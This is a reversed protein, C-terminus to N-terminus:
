NNQPHLLSQQFIKSQDKESLRMETLRDQSYCSVFKPAEARLHVQEQMLAQELGQSVSTWYPQSADARGWVIRRRRDNGSTM